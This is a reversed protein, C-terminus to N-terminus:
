LKKGVIIQTFKNHTICKKAMEMIDEANTRQITNWLEQLITHDTHQNKWFAFKSMYSVSNSLEQIVSGTMYTKVTQLEEHSVPEEQLRKLESFCADLSEQTHAADVDSQISFISQNGFYVSSSFIGYTYGLKERVCQMLRSGFYGGVLTSLVKFPTRMEEAYSIHPMALCISSQMSGEVEQNLLPTHDAPMQFLPLGEQRAGRPIGGFHKRILSSTADDLQGTVYLTLNDACFNARHYCHLDDTTIENLTAESAPVGATCQNGLLAQLMLRSAVFNNKKLNNRLAQLRQQRIIDLYEQRYSPTTMMEVLTPLLQPLNRKPVVIKLCVGDLYIDADFTSGYFDLLDAMEAATHHPHSGKLLGYTFLALHKKPEYMSGSRVDLQLHILELTENHFQYLPIGNELTDVHPAQPRFSHFPQIEPALSRDIM